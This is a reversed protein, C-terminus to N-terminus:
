VILNLIRGPAYIAKRVGGEALKAVAPLALALATADAEPLLKGLTLSGRTKGNVQVGIEVTDEVCLAEDWTM